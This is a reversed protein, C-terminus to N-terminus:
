LEIKFEIVREPPMGSLEDPFVDQFELVVHIDELKREVVHYLPAKIHAVVPLHLTVKGYVPSILHVLRAAIDLIAKHLKM